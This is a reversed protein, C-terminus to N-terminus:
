TTPVGMHRFLDAMGGMAAKKEEPPRYKLYAAALWELRPHTRWHRSLEALRVM